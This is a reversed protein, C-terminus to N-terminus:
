RLLPNEFLYRSPELPVEEHIGVVGNCLLVICDALPTLLISATSPPDLHLLPLDQKLKCLYTLFSTEEANREESCDVTM